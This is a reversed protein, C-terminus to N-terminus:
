FSIKDAAQAIRDIEAIVGKTRLWAEERKGRVKTKVFGGRYRYYTARSKGTRAKWSELSEGERVTLGDEM